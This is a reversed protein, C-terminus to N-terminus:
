FGGKQLGAYAILAAEARGDHKKLPWHHVAHPFLQSARHRAVNKDRSVQLAKKWVSPMILTYPIGCCACVTMPIDFNIGFNLTSTAGAFAASGDKNPKPPMATIREIFAHCIQGRFASVIRYTAARDIEYKISGNVKVQSLPFDFIDVVAANHDIVALAGYLGPDVGLFLM